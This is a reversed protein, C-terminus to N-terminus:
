KTKSMERNAYNSSICNDDFSTDDYGVDIDIDDDYVTMKVMQHLVSSSVLKNITGM